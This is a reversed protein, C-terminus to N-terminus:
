RRSHTPTVFSSRSMSSCTRPSCRAEPPHGALYRSYQEVSKLKLASIRRGIRRGVTGDKYSSFDMGTADYVRTLIRETADGSARASPQRPAPSAPALAAIEEAIAAPASIFDAVGAAIASQPMGDYKATAPDQVFTLGGGSKIAGLGITGDTATGSLVVGIARNGLEEALSRLLADAPMPPKRGGARPTLRLRGRRLELSTNPPIVYVRNPEVRIGQTVELVPMTTVVQIAASLMSAHSPDLHQVFVYAM